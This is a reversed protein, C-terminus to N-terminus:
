RKKRKQCIIFGSLTIASITVFIIAISANKNIEFGGLNNTSSVSFSNDILSVTQGQNRAWANLRERATSVVYNSSTMFEEKAAPSLTNLKTLVLPLKTVCQNNTDEYMIYNCVNMLTDDGCLSYTISGINSYNSATTGTKATTYAIKFYRYGGSKLTAESYSVWNTGDKSITLVGDSRAGTAITYSVSQLDRDFATTNQISGIAKGFSIYYSGSKPFKYANTTVTFGVSGITVSSSSATSSSSSLNSNKIDNSSITTTKSSPEVYAMRSVSVDVNAKVSGVSVEFQKTKSTAGSNTDSYTFMYNDNEFTFDTITATKGSDYKATVTIDSKTITEGPHFTKSVTATLTKIGDAVINVNFTTSITKSEKTKYSGTYTVTVTSVGVTASSFGTLSYKSSDLTESSYVDPKTFNAKVSVKTTDLTCGEIVDGGSYTATLSGVIKDDEKVNIGYTLTKTVGSYTYSVTVTQNGPTNMDYGGFSCSSTVNANTGNSYYATIVGGFSFTDGETFQTKYSGSLAISQLIIPTSDTITVSCTGSKTTDVTSTATITAKGVKVATVVGSSSVTAVSTDSSKWTVTQAPTPTGGVTASLSGTLKNYLDLSLTSPSVTVPGVVPTAAGVQYSIGYAKIGKSINTLEIKLSNGNSASTSSITVDGSGSLTGSGITTTGVYINITAASGSNGGLKVTVNKFECSSSKNLLFVVKSAPNKSSGIQDYNSSATFNTTGTTTITWSNKLDDMGSVSTSNIQIDGNNGFTVNGESSGQSVTISLSAEGTGYVSIIDITATGESVGTVVGDDSVTAVNANSSEYMFLRSANSPVTTITPEIDYTDGVNISKTSPSISISDAAVIGLVTTSVTDTATKSNLSATVTITATGQCVGTVKGNTDVTAVSTDNSSYSLTGNYTEIKLQKTEGESITISEQAVRVFPEDIALLAGVDLRGNTINSPGVDSYKTGYLSVPVYKNKYTGKGAASSQLDTLFEDPTGNPNKQKWLAAAGAVIPSSFSTGQTQIYTKSYSYSSSGTIGATYVYGPALIDVNQEGTENASVYNTFAALTDDSNEELAGAAVVKYNCAPYSHHWTAENGAAAVVIIGKQYAEKCLDELLEAYEQSGTWEDGFPDTFDEAFWGLSMNIVDVDQSIAYELAGYISPFYMDIKIALIDAEPAIGVGGGNNMPAAATTSTNTGHTNWEYYEENDFDEGIVSHDSSYNKYYYYNGSSYYYRSSELIASTGDSRIYEPHDYAFGDDIIAITTGKGTYHDWTSEIDGINSMSYNKQTSYYNDTPKVLKHAKANPDINEVFGGFFSNMEPIFQDTEYNRTNKANLFVVASVTLIACVLIKNTKKNINGM